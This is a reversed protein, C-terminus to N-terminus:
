GVIDKDLNERETDIYKLVACAAHRWANQEYQGIEEWKSLDCDCEQDVLTDCYKQYAIRGIDISM